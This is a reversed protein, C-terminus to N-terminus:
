PGELARVIIGWSASAGDLDPGLRAPFEGAGQIYRWPPRPDPIPEVVVVTPWQALSPVPCLPCERAGCPLGLM